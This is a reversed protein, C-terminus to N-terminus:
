LEGSEIAEKLGAQTRQHSSVGNTVTFDILLVSAEFVLHETVRTRGQGLDEFVIKQHTVVNPLTWTDTEYFLADRHLRQQAHTESTVPVGAVPVDEVATFDVLRVGNETRDRHTIVRRLFPHIGLHNEIDSYVDFVHQVPADIEISIDREARSRGTVPLPATLCEYFRYTDWAVQWRAAVLPDSEARAPAPLLALLLLLAVPLSAALRRPFTTM